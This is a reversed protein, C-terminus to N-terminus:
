LTLFLKDIINGLPRYQTIPITPYYEHPNDYERFALISTSNATLHNILDDRIASLLDFYTNGQYERVLLRVSATDYAVFTDLQLLSLWKAKYITNINANFSEAINRFEQNYWEACLLNTKLPLLKEWRTKFYSIAEYANKWTRRENGGFCIRADKRRCLM